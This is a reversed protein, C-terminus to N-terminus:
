GIIEFLTALYTLSKCFGVGFFSFITDPSINPNKELIQTLEKIDEEKLM